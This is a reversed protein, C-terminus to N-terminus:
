GYRQRAATNFARLAVSDAERRARGLARARDATPARTFARDAAALRERVEEVDLPDTGADALDHAVQWLDARGSGDGSKTIFYDAPSGPLQAVFRAPGSGQNSVTERSLGTPEPNGAGPIADLTGSRSYFVRRAM